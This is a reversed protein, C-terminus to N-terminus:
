PGLVTWLKIGSDVLNLSDYLLLTHTAPFLVSYILGAVPQLRVTCYYLM